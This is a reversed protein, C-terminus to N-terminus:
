WEVHYTQVEQWSTLIFYSISETDLVSFYKKSLELVKGQERAIVVVPITSKQWLKVSRWRQDNLLSIFNYRYLSVSLM